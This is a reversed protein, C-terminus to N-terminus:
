CGAADAAGRCQLSRQLGDAVRRRAHPRNVWSHASLQADAEAKGTRCLVQDQSPEWCLRLRPTSSWWDLRTPASPNRERAGRRKTARHPGANVQLEVAPGLPPEKRAAGNASHDTSSAAHDACSDCRSASSTRESQRPLPRAIRVGAAARPLRHRRARVPCRAARRRPLRRVETAGVLARPWRRTRPHPLTSRRQAKLCFERGTSACRCLSLSLAARGRRRSATRRARGTPAAARGRAARRAATRRALASTSWGGRARAGAVKLAVDREVRALPRRRREFGLRAGHQGVRRRRRQGVHHRLLQPQM